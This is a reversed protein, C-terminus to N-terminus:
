EDQVRTVLHWKIFLHKWGQGNRFISMNGGLLTVEDQFTVFIGQNDCLRSM